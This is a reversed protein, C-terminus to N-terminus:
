NIQNDIVINQVEKLLVRELELSVEKLNEGIYIRVDQATANSAIKVLIGGQMAMFKIRPKKTSLGTKIIGPVINKVESMVCALMCVLEAEKSSVTTHRRSFKKGAVKGKINM